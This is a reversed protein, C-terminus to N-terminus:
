NVSYFGGYFNYQMTLNESKDYFTLTNIRTRNTLCDSEEVGDDCDTIVEYELTMKYEDTECIYSEDDCNYRGMIHRMFWWIKETDNEENCYSQGNLNICLTKDNGSGVIAIKNSKTPFSVYDAKVSLENLADQVTTSSLKSSSNDYTIDGASISEIACVGVTCFLFGLAIGIFLKYNNKLHRM